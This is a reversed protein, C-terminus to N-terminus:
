GCGIIRSLIGCFKEFMLGLAGMGETDCFDKQM